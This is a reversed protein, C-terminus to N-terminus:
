LLILFVNAPRVSGSPAHVARQHLLSIKLVPVASWEAVGMGIYFVLYYWVRLVVAQANSHPCQLMFDNMICHQPAANQQTHSECRSRSVVEEKRLISPLCCNRLMLLYEGQLMLPAWQGSYFSATGNNQERAV